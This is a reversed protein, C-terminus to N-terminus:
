VCLSYLFVPRAKEWRWVGRKQGPDNECFIRVSQLRPFRKLQEAVRTCDWHSRRKITISLHSLNDPPLYDIISLGYSEDSLDITLHEMSAPMRAFEVYRFVRCRGVNVIRAQRSIRRSQSSDFCQWRWDFRVCPRDLYARVEERWSRSCMSLTALDRLRMGDFLLWLVDRDLHGLPNARLLAEERSVRMAEAIMADEYLANQEIDHLWQVRLLDLEYEDRSRKTGM